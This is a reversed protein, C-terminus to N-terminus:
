DNFSFEFVEDSLNNTVKYVVKDKDLKETLKNNPILLFKISKEEGETKLVGELIINGEKDAKGETIDLSIPEEYTSQFYDNMDSVFADTNFEPCCCESGIVKGCIPCINEEHCEEECEVPILILDYRYGENKSRSVKYQKGEAKYKEIAEGLERRTKFSLVEDIRDIRKAANVAGRPDNHDDCYDMDAEAEAREAKLEAIKDPDTEKELQETVEEEEVEEERVKIDGTEVPAKKTISIEWNENGEQATYIGNQLTFKNYFEELSDDNFIDKVLGASVVEGNIKIEIEDESDLRHAVDIAEVLSETTYGMEELYYDYLDGLMAPNWYRFNAENVCKEFEEKGKIIGSAKDKEVWDAVESMARALINHPDNDEWFHEEINEKDDCTETKEEIGIKNDDLFNTQESVYELTWPLRPDETKEIVKYTYINEDDDDVFKINIYENIDELGFDNSLHILGTEDDFFYDVDKVEVFDLAEERLPRNNNEGEQINEKDTDEEKSETQINLNYMRKLKRIGTPEPSEDLDEKKSENQIDSTLMRKLKRIGSPEAGEERDDKVKTETLIDSFEEKIIDFADKYGTFSKFKEILGKDHTPRIFSSYINELDEHEKGTLTENIWSELSKKDALNYKSLKNVNLIEQLLEDKESVETKVEEADSSKKLNLVLVKPSEMSIFKKDKFQELADDVKGNFIEVGEEQDVINVVEDERDAFATLIDGVKIDEETDEDAINLPLLSGATHFSGFEEEKLSEPIEEYTGKYILKGDADHIECQEINEPDVMLAFLDNLTNYEKHGEGNEKVYDEVTGYESTDYELPKEFDFLEEEEEDEWLNVDSESIGNLLGRLKGDELSENTDTDDEEVEEEDVLEGLKPLELDETDDVSIDEEKDEEDTEKMVEEEPETVTEEETEEVEEKEATETEISAEDNSVTEEEKKEEPVKSVQGVIEFGENEAHCTPCEDELNYVEIKEGENSLDDIESTVLKDMDIFKLGQCKKCKLIVQGVYDVKDKVHELTDANVDVITIPRDTKTTAEEVAKDAEEKNINSNLDITIAESLKKKAGIKGTRRPTNYIIDDSVDKLAKFADMMSFEEM